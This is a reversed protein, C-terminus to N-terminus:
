DEVADEPHQAGAGRPPVQGLAIARPLGTIVTEDVPAAGAQPRAEQLLHLGAFIGGAAQIPVLGTDIATNHAGMLVRGSRRGDGRPAPAGGRSGGLRGIMAQPATPAAETGLQM